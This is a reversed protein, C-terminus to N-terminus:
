HECYDWDKDPRKIRILKCEIDYDYQEDYPTNGSFRFDPHGIPKPDTENRFVSAESHLTWVIKLSNRFHRIFPRLKGSIILENDTSKVINSNILQRLANVICEHIRKEEGDAWLKLSEWDM